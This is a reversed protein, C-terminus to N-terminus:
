ATGRGMGVPTPRPSRFRAAMYGAIPGVLFWYGVERRLGELLRTTAAWLKPAGRVRGDPRREGGASPFSGRNDVRVYDLSDFESRHGEISSSVSSAFRRM